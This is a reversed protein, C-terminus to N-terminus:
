NVGIDAATEGAKLTALCVSARTPDNLVLCGRRIKPVPNGELVIPSAAVLKNALVAFGPEGSRQLASSNLIEFRAFSGPAVQKMLEILVRGMTFRPNIESLPKLRVRGEGDRYVFADLGAPGVYGVRKFEAEMVPILRGFLELMEAAVDRRGQFCATVRTSPRRHWGPGVWNAIFQGKLDNILGTFGMLRLREDGMELQVSFDILREHWPEVVLSRGNELVREMWRRQSISVEPEWLRISNSGALGVSEKVVLRHHGRSRIRAIIEEAEAMTRVEQGVDEVGCLWDRWEVGTKDATFLSELLGRLLGAAKAKSYLAAIDPNFRQGASRSEGAVQPIWPALLELSDPGWAWPRLRGLKREPSIADPPIRGDELLIFEPLPFGAKQIDSLFEPSPMSRVLVVDDTRCLFQPLTELDAALRAQHQVPNFRNGQAIFGEALPNFVFVNPTRGRSHSYVGLSRIFEEDLGAAKRGEVNMPAAKARQPSLPFKLQRCFAEWDSLEPSKWRRFWKLGYAVHGIEDRHIRGLLESTAGDGVRRFGESYLQCFDLNAQEFTLCLSSVYDIPHEMGSVCRWFFGSVPLEGFEVGCSQMRELYMRTHEQEDKLTQLVGRRFAAPAEPFKLIVFAMLETALLEHNAFFHLLRGREREKEIAHLGPFESAGTGSPKFRLSAPRGPMLPAVMAPGPQEDTISDPAALKEELSESFLIREAFTRLEM